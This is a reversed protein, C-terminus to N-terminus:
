KKLKIIIEYDRKRYDPCNLRFKSKDILKRSTIEQDNYFIPILNTPVLYLKEDKRELYGRIEVGPCDISDVCTSDYEGITIRKNNPM